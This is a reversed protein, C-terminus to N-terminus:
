TGIWGMTGLGLWVANCGAHLLVCDRLRGTREFVWGIALAVPLTALGMWGTRLLAHATAFVLAVGLNASSIGFRNSVAARRLWARHLGARFVTEELLPAWLLWAWGASM